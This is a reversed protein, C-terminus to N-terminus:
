RSRGESEPQPKDSGEPESEPRTAPQGSGGQQAERNGPSVPFVEDPTVSPLEHIDFSTVSTEFEEYGINSVKFRGNPSYLYDPIGDGNTDSYLVTGKSFKVSQQPETDTADVYKLWQFDKRTSLAVERNSKALMEWRQIEEIRGDSISRQDIIAAVLRGDREFVNVKLDERGAVTVQVVELPDSLEIAHVRPHAEQPEDKKCSVLIAAFAVLTFAKM